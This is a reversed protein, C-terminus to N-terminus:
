RSVDVVTMQEDYTLRLEEDELPITIRIRVPDDALLEQRYTLLHARQEYRALDFEIGHEYYFAIVAPHKTPYFLTPMRWNYKCVECVHSVLM